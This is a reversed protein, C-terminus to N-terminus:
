TPPLPIAEIEVASHAWPGRYAARVRWRESGCSIVDDVALRRATETASIDLVLGRGRVTRRDLVEVEVAPRLGLLREIEAPAIRVAGCRRCGELGPSGIAAPAYDHLDRTPDACRTM